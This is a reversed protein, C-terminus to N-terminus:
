FRKSVCFRFCVPRSTFSIQMEKSPPDEKPVVSYAQVELCDGCRYSVDFSGGETMREPKELLEKINALDKEELRGVMMKWLIKAAPLAFANHVELIGDSSDL